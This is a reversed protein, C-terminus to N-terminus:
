EVQFQLTETEPNIKGELINVELSGSGGYVSKEREELTM